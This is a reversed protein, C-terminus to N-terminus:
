PTLLAAFHISHLNLLFLFLVSYFNFELALLQEAHDGDIWKYTAGKYLTLKVWNGHHKVKVM